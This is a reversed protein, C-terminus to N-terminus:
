TSPKRKYLWGASDLIAYNHMSYTSVPSAWAPCEYDNMPEPGHRPIGGNKALRTASAPNEVDSGGCARRHSLGCIRLAAPM